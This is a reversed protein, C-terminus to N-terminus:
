AIEEIVLQGSCMIGGMLTDWIDPYEKGMPIGLSCVHPIDWNYEIITHENIPNLMLLTFKHKVLSSLVVELEKTEEYTGNMRVFLIHECDELNKLFRHIRRGFKEKVAPYTPWHYATNPPASFDHASYIDYLTDRLLLKEGGAHLGEFVMNEKEMFNAFRNRLLNTLDPLSFTIMWDFVGAYPRLRYHRLKTSIECRDGLSFIMDYKGKIDLLKM